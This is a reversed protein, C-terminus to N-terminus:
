TFPVLQIRNKLHATFNSWQVPVPFYLVEAPTIETVSLSSQACRPTLCPAPAAYPSLSMSVYSARYSGVAPKTQAQLALAELPGFGSKMHRNSCLPPCLTGPCSHNQKRYLYMEEAWAYTNIWHWLVSFSM